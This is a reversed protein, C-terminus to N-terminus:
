TTSMQCPNRDPASGSPLCECRRLETGCRVDERAHAVSVRILKEPLIERREGGNLLPDLGLRGAAIGM